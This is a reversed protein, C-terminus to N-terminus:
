FFRLDAVHFLHPDFTSLTQASSEEFAIRNRSRPAFSARLLHAPKMEAIYERAPTDEPTTDPTTHSIADLEHMQTTEPPVAVM